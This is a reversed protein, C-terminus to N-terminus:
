PEISDPIAEADLVILGPACNAPLYYPFEKSDTSQLRGIVDEPNVSAGEPDWGYLQFFRAADEVCRFPQGMDLPFAESWHPVGLADLEQLTDSFTFRKLPRDALSFRHATWNKKILVAKGLCQAKVVRLIEVTRGFFCFVMADYREAPEMSFVNGQLIDLNAIDRIRANERLVSLAAESLDVATVRACRSALALSLYGLGCGADCVRANKPLYPAIREAIKEEFGTYAAADRRFRIVDETWDFM